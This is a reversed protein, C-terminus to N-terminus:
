CPIELSTSDVLEKLDSVSVMSNVDFIRISSVIDYFNLESRIIRARSSMSLVVGLLM